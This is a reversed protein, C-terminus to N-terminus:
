GHCISQPSYNLRPPSAQRLTARPAPPAQPPRDRAPPGDTDAPTASCGAHDAPVRRTPGRTGATPAIEGRPIHRQRVPAGQDAIRRHGNRGPRPAPAYPCTVPHAPMSRARATEADPNPPLRTSSRCRATPDPLADARGSRVPVRAQAPDVDHRRRSYDRCHMATWPADPLHPRFSNWLMPFRAPNGARPPFDPDPVTEAEGGSGTDAPM